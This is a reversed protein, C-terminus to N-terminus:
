YSFAGKRYTRGCIYLLKKGIRQFFIFPGWIEACKKVEDVDFGLVGILNNNEYTAVFSPEWGIDSFDHIITQLLEEKENEVIVLMILLMKNMNAIFAAVEEIKLISSVHMVEGEERICKCSEGNIDKM